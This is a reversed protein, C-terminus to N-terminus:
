RVKEEAKSKESELTEAKRKWESIESKMESLQVELIKVRDNEHAAQLRQSLYKLNVDPDKMIQILKEVGKKHEAGTSMAYWDSLIKRFAGRDMQYDPKRKDREFNGRTNPHLKQAIVEAHQENIRGEDVECLLTDVVNDGLVRRLDM